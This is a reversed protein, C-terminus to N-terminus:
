KEEKEKKFKAIISEQNKAPVEEYHSFRMAYFGRGQTISKLENAYKFMEALPVKAKITQSGSSQGGMGMIRGRRSNLSGTIDGMYEDPVTLDVDMIPELITPKAKQFAEKFAQRAAIQFAIDKSDVPHTKGDYVVARVDTVPCGALIGQEMASRIGKECSAVFAAPISGGVVKDVFEFGGGHPLPEIRMWVEAFQGAGGSQKKHRYKSDGEGKITEKYAVKPTGLEVDVKFRNKLRTIMVEVHLDGVGSVIQEKTQVDRTLTFTPDESAIKHLATSIKDEDGKSKPKISRSIAPEPFQFPAFIIKAKEDCITDGTKSNKLKAVAAIDGTCAAEKTIQEKGRLQYVQAIREKAGASTNYFSTNPQLKGSFIRFVTLQGIYPDSITKVVQASFPEDESPKRVAEEGSAPDKGKKPSVDLPSPLYRCVAELLEKIGINQLSSGAFVPVINKNLIATGLARATEEESLKNGELYKELLSDESEAITEILSESLKSCKEKDEPSLSGMNEGTMVNAVGKFSGGTGIPYTFIVCKKGFKEVISEVTKIFNAHEKDMKNIFIMRPLKLSDLLNWAKETGIEIGSVANVLLIGSDAAHISSILDGIFDMYGPPDILHIQKGNYDVCGFGVNISIKREIEDSNYDCTTTGDTVRGLRSIAGANFLVAEGLSTKGAQPHSVFIVNRIDKPQHM